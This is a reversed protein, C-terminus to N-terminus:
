SEPGFPNTAGKHVASTSASHPAMLQSCTLYYNGKVSLMGTSPAYKPQIFINVIYSHAEHAVSVTIIPGLPGPKRNSPQRSSICGSGALTLWLQHLGM